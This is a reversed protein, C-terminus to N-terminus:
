ITLATMTCIVVTDIFPELLAVYGETVPNRTKVVLHAIPASGLGAEKSFAARQFGVILAGVAGGVVGEPSFAHVEM